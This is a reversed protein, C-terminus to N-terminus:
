REQISERPLKVFANKKVLSNEKVRNIRVAGVCQFGDKFMYAM